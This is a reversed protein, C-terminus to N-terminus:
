KACELRLSASRWEGISDIISIVNRVGNTKQRREHHILIWIETFSIILQM